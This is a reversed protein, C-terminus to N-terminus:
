TWLLINAMGSKSLSTSGIKDVMQLTSGQAPIYMSEQTGDMCPFYYSQAQSVGNYTNDEIGDTCGFNLKHPQGQGMKRGKPAKKNKEKLRNVINDVKSVKWKTCPRGRRRAVLPSLVKHTM